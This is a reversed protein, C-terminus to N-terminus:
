SVILHVPDIKATPYLYPHHLRKYELQKNNYNILLGVPLGSATLYNITQAQHEPLLCKCCKLEIIVLNEVIIDAKYVGIKQKRFYIEFTKESEVALGKEKLAILLANKYVSELFGTGLENMVDFCCGLIASTLQFHPFNSDLNINM